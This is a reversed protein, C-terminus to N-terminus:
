GLPSTLCELVLIVGAKFGAKFHTLETEARVSIESNAFDEFVEKQRDNLCNRLKEYFSYAEDSVKKYEVSHKIKESLGQSDLFIEEIISKFM